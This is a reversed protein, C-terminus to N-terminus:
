DEVGFIYKNIREKGVASVAEQAKEESEFYIAGQPQCYSTFDIKLNDGDIVFFLYYNFKGYEFPRGFKRLEAEVKLKKVTFEAQQKTQFFNGIAQRHNDTYYDNYLSNDVSGKDDIRWYIDGVQPFEREEKALEELEAIREKLAKLEEQLNM